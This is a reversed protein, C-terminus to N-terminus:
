AARRASQARFQPKLWLAQVAREGTDFVRRTQNFRNINAREVNQVIECISFRESQAYDPCTDGKKLISMM